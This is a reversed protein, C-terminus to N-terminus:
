TSRSGSAQWCRGGAATTRRRSGTGPCMPPPASASCSSRMIATRPLAQPIPWARTRTVGVGVRRAATATAVAARTPRGPGGPGFRRESGSSRQEAVVAPVVTRLLWDAVIAPDAPIEGDVVRARISEMTVSVDGADVSARVRRLVSEEHEALLAGVREDSAAVLVERVEGDSPNAAMRSGLADPASGEWGMGLSILSGRPGPHRAALKIEQRVEAAEKGGVRTGDSAWWEGNPAQVLVREGFILALGDGDPFHVRVGTVSPDKVAQRDLIRNLKRRDDIDASKLARAVQWASGSAVKVRLPTWFGGVLSVVAGFEAPEAGADSDAPASDALGQNVASEHPLDPTAEPYFHGEFSAVVDAPCGLIETLIGALEKDIVMWKTLSGKINEKMALAGPSIGARSAMEDISLGQKVRAAQLWTNPTAHAAPAPWGQAWYFHGIVSEIADASYGLVEMLRRALEENIERERALPSYPNEGTNLKTATAGSRESLFELSIGKRERVIKLWQGFFTLSSMDPMVDPYFHGMFSEAIDDPCGLIGTLKRALGEDIFVFKRPSGKIDTLRRKLDIPDHGALSAVKEISLGQKARAAELWTNPLVHVGLAPWGQTWYFHDIVSDRVDASYGLVEMLRRALEENIEKERTLPSAPSEKGGLTKASVGSGKSLDALTVGKSKRAARLWEGFFEFSGPDPGGAESLREPELSEGAPGPDGLDAGIVIDSPPGLEPDFDEDSLTHLPDGDITTISDVRASDGYRTWKELATDDAPRFYQFLDIPKHEDRLEIVDDNDFEGPDLVRAGDGFNALAIVHGRKIGPRSICLFVLAGPNADVWDRAARVSEFREGEADWNANSTRAFGAPTMGDSWPARVGLIRFACDLPRTHFEITRSDGDVTLTLGTDTTTVALQAPRATNGLLARLEDTVPTDTHADRLGTFGLLQALLAATRDLADDTDTRRLTVSISDLPLTLSLYTGDTDDAFVRVTGDPLRAAVVRGGRSTLLQFVIRRLAARQDDTVGDLDLTAAGAPDDVFVTPVETSPQAREIELPPQPRWRGDADLREVEAGTFRLTERVERVTRGDTDVYRYRAVAEAPLGVRAAPTNLLAALVGRASEHDGSDPMLLVAEPGAATDVLALRHTVFRANEDALRLAGEAMGRRRDRRVPADPRFALIRGLRQDFAAEFGGGALRDAREELDAGDVDYTTATRARRAREAAHGSL